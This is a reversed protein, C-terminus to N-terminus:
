RGADSFVPDKSHAREFATRRMFCPGCDGCHHDGGRYCSWTLHYPVGLSLGLRVVEHKMLNGVPSLVRMGYHPAVFYPCAGDLLETMAEENDPYAGAEELNNGLAVAHYGLAEAHAIALSLFVLNRAPVWEHAYEAGAVGAAIADDEAHLRSGGPPGYYPLTYVILPAQLHAAIRAVAEAERDGARVGYRFHILGVEHGGAKLAYAATTSDLGASAVVLVRRADKRHILASEGTVLDMATYAPLEAPSQGRPLWDFHRAMSSFYWNLGDPSHYYLPKYNRAVLVTGGGVCALAYSGSVASLSDALAAPSDRRIVRSLAESDVEGDRGGLQKDNAITGNHVMRGYPQMPPHQVEPTPCARWSGLAAARGGLDAYWQLGGGDRGRDGARVALKMLRDVDPSTGVYGYISCM